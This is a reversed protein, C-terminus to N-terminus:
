QIYIWVTKQAKLTLQSLRGEKGSFPSITQKGVLCHFHCNFFFGYIHINVWVHYKCLLIERERIALDHGVGAVGNVMDQWAGGDMPNELCSYQFPSDNEEGSYYCLGIYLLLFFIM